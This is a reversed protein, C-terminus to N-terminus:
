GREGARRVRMSARRRPAPAAARPALQAVQVRPPHSAHARPPHAAHAVAHPAAAHARRQERVVVVRTPADPRHRDVMTRAPAGHGHREVIVPHHGARPAQLVDGAYSVDIDDNPDPRIVRVTAPRNAAIEVQAPTSANRRLNAATRVGREHLQICRDTVTRSCPPYGSRAEIPGMAREPGPHASVLTLGAVAALLMQKKM